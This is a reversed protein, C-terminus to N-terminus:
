GVVVVRYQNSTPAVSFKVTLNNSDTHEVDAEVQAYPSANEYVHVSVDRTALSHTVAYSTAAGDGVNFALKRTGYGNATDFVLAGAAFTLGTGNNIGLGSATVELGDNTNTKVEVAGGTNTLSANGSTPTVDVSFETGALTIGAGATFTGVGSFQSFVLNTSGLTIPNDSTLVYGTNGNVTGEEVFTFLGATVEADSNADESRSAAGSSAVVYIGNQTQDTQNKVLVRNGTALTVGDLVDGNELDATLDINATTAVRVSLKVDLGIATSDVYGKTAADTANTPTALGTIKNNNANLDSSLSNGAGLTKNTLTQAGNNTTVTSDIDITLSGAGDNYTKDLGTGAIILNDVADEIRDVNLTVAGSTVTFDTGDFSAIGKNSSTADEGAVTISTGTHTVDLGEGGLISFGHSSPTLAGSDTTVTKVVTDELEVAGGTVNFDNADFFAIGKTVTTADEGAITLTGANDDYTVDIGEGAQVLGTVADGVTDDIFEALDTVQSTAIQIDQESAATLRGQADVTFSATKAATTGYNGAAVATNDLDITTNGTGADDYTATLGTGGIVSSGIIDQVAETSGSTPVWATGNYFYLVNATTDFYIQGAVPSSPASSLNHIRANQLENKNLNIGTVFLRAM